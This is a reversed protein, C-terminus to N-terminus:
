FWGGAGQSLGAGHRHKVLRPRLRYRRHAGPPRGAPPCACRPHGAAMRAALQHTFAPCNIAAQGERLDAGYESFPVGGGSRYAELLAPLPRVAGVLLQALPALYNLSSCEILPEAHGPPLRYRREGADLREDDVEIIGAVTQQELWERIYREHTDTRAALGAPTSPGSEVLSRYLGLRDGIYITFINFAGSASQLFREMFADRQRAVADETLGQPTTM